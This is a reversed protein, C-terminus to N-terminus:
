APHYAQYHSYAAQDFGTLTKSTIEQLASRRIVGSRATKLLKGMVISTITGADELASTRHRCSEYISIFLNNRNFPELSGADDKFMLGLSLDAAELTTFINHCSLCKRRRWVQNLGKQHRSNTVKTAQCCYICVM